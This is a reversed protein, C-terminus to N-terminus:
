VKVHPFIKTDPYWIMKIPYLIMLYLITLVKLVKLMLPTRPYMKRLDIEFLHWFYFVESGRVCEPNQICFWFSFFPLGSKLHSVKLSTKRFMHKPSDPFLPRDRNHVTRRFLVTRRFHVTKQRFTSPRKIFLPREELFHVTRWFTSLGKLLTRDRPLASPRWYQITQPLLKGNLPGQCLTFTSPGFSSLPHNLPHFHVTWLTFTSPEFPSLPRNLSNLHVTWLIFRFSWIPSLPRTSLLRKEYFTM